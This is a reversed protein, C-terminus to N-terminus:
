RVAQQRCVSQGLSSYGCRQYAPGGTRISLAQHRGPLEKETGFGSGTRRSGTFDIAEQVGAMASRPHWPACYSASNLLTLGKNALEEIKKISQDKDLDNERTHQAIGEAQMVRAPINNADAEILRDAYVSAQAADGKNQSAEMAMTLLMVKYDTDVFNELVYNIAKLEEDVNQSQAATQVKQLAELEKQTKPKPGAAPQQAQLLCGCFAM